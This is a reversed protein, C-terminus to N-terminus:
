YLRADMQTCRFSIERSLTTLYTTTAREAAKATELMLRVLTLRVDADLVAPDSEAEDAIQTSTLSKLKVPKTKARPKGTTEAEEDAAQAEAEAAKVAAAEADAAARAIRARAQARATRAGLVLYQEQGSLVGILEVIRGFEGAWYSQTDSLQAASLKSVNSVFPKRESQTRLAESNLLGLRVALGAVESGNPTKALFENANRVDSLDVTDDM